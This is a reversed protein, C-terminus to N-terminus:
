SKGDWESVKPVNLIQVIQCELDPEDAFTFGHNEPRALYVQLDVWSVFIASIKSKRSFAVFM